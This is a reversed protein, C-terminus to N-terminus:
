GAALRPIGNPGRDGYVHGREHLVAADTQPESLSQQCKQCSRLYNLGRAVCKNM